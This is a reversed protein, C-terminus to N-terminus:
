KKAKNLPKKKQKKKSVKPSKVHEETKVVYTVSAKEPSTQHWKRIISEYVESRINKRGSSEQLESVQKEIQAVLNEDLMIVVRTKKHSVLEVKEKTEM